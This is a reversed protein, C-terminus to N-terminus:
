VLGFGGESAIVQGTVWGGDPGVLFAVLAAADEPRGWRGFPLRRLAEATIEPTAWGTDTPGPNVCNLRIGKGVVAAALSPTMGALAAKSSAYPIELPMPGGQQGSTFLVIRGDGAEFRDAFEKVLLLTARTNVAYAADVEAATLEALPAWPTNRAHNAVLIDVRGFAAVGADLVAAPAAPDTFDADVYEARRGAARLEAVIADPGDPDGGEHREVDHRRWGQVLVDAGEAALRRAIAAGIGIRRSVGTVIATRGALGLAM